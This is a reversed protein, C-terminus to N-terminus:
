ALGFEFIRMIAITIAFLVNFLIIGIGTYTLWLKNTKM